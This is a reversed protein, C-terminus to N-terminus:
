RALIMRPAASAGPVWSAMYYAKGTVSAHLNRAARISLSVDEWVQPQSLLHGISNVVTKTVSPEPTMAGHIAM